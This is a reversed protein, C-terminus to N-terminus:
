QTGGSVAAAPKKRRILVSANKKLNSSLRVEYRKKGDYVLMLATNPPIRGLNDAFMSIENIEKTTDLGVTFQISRASLIRNFALLQKNFFISISDGDVEGNDYFDVQLSDSEVVIEDVVETEREKYQNTVVYNVVPRQIITAAVLTDTASPRWLQYTEKFERLATLISDQNTADKNLKFDFFIEPCTNRYASKGILRGNLNSGAKAVRLTASLDMACDVEMSGTSAYYTVPINNIVLQRTAANYSGNLKFSRFTNRFYYNIVGVVSSKNQQLILEFLYNNASGGNQVNANGYWYGVVNQQASVLTSLFVCLIVLLKKM